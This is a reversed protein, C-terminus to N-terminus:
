NIDASPNMLKTILIHSNETPMLDNSLKRKQVNMKVPESAASIIENRKIPLKRQLYQPM